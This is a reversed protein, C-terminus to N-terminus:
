ANGSDDGGRDGERREGSASRGPFLRIRVKFWPGPRNRRGPLSALALPNGCGLGLNAGEPVMKLEQDTYGISKSIIDTERGGGWCSSAPQSCSGGQKAARAYRDRVYKKIEEEKM